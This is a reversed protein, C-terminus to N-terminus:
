RLLIQILLPFYKETLYEGDIDVVEAKYCCRKYRVRVEEGVSLQGRQRVRSRVVTEEVGRYRPPQLWRVTVFGM